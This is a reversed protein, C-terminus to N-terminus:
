PSQQQALYSRRWYDMPDDRRIPVQLKFFPRGAGAITNLVNQYAIDDVNVDVYSSGSLDAINELSKKVISFVQPGLAKQLNSNPSFITEIAKQPLFRSGIDAVKGVGYAAGFALPNLGDKGGFLINDAAMNESGPEAPQGSGKGGGGGGGKFKSPDTVPPVMKSPDVPKQDKNKEERLGGFKVRYDNKFSICYDNPHNKIKQEMLSALYIQTNTPINSM